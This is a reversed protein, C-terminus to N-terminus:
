TLAIYKLQVTITKVCKTNQAQRTDEATASKSFEILKLQLNDIAKYDKM